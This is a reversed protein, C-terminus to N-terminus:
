NSHVIFVADAPFSTMVLLRENSTYIYINHAMYPPPFFLVFLCEYRVDTVAAHTTGQGNSTDSSKEPPEKQDTLQVNRESRYLVAQMTPAVKRAKGLAINASSVAQSTGENM